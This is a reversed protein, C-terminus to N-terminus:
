KAGQKRLIRRIQPESLGICPADSLLAKHIITDRDTIGQAMFEKCRALFSNYLINRSIFKYTVKQKQVFHRLYARYARYYSIYHIPMPMLEIDQCIEHLSSYKGQKRMIRYLDLIRKARLEEIFNNRDAVM